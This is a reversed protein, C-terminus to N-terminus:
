LQVINDIVSALFRTTITEIVNLVLTYKHCLAFTLPKLINNATSLLIRKKTWVRADYMYPVNHTRYQVYTYTSLDSYQCRVCPYTLNIFIFTWLCLLSKFFISHLLSLSLRRTFSYNSIESGSCSSRSFWYFTGL